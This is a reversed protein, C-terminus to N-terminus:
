SRESTYMRACTLVPPAAGGQAYSPNFFPTKIDVRRHDRLAARQVRKGVLQAVLQAVFPGDELVDVREFWLSPSRARVGVVFDRGVDVGLVRAAGVARALARTTHGLASGVDLALAVPPRLAAALKRYVDTTPVVVVKPRSGAAVREASAAAPDSVYEFVADRLAPPTAKALAPPTARRAAGAPTARRTWRGHQKRAAPRALGCALGLGVLAILCWLEREFWAM